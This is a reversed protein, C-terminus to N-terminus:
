AAAEDTTGVPIFIRFDSGKGPTSDVLVAGRHAEVARQVIALGLGSGGVRGTVFPDFLRERLDDPIGPGNDFVRLLVVGGAQLDPPVEGPAARRVEVGIDAQGDSAQIANLVLNAVVRHLLDEDGDVSVESHRVDIRTTDLCAPHQRVMEVAAGVVASLNVPKAEVVQM